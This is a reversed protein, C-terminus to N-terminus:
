AGCRRFLKCKGKGYGKFQRYLANGCLSRKPKHQQESQRQQMQYKFKDYAKAKESPQINERQINSDVMVMSAEDDNLEKVFVPMTELGLVECVHKRTHGAIIEYGGQERKRVIGPVLVGHERVSEIMEELEEDSRIQFPHNHFEHLESLPIEKVDGMEATEEVVKGGFLDDFSTLKVNKLAKIRSM